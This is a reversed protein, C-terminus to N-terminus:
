CAGLDNLVFFLVIFFIRGFFDGFIFTVTFLDMSYKIMDSVCLQGIKSINDVYQMYSNSIGKASFPHSPISPHAHPASPKAILLTPASIEESNVHSSMKHQQNIPIVKSCDDKAPPSAISNLESVDDFAKPVNTFKRQVKYRKKKPEFNLHFLVPSFCIALNGRTM